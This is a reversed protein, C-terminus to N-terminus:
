AYAPPRLGLEDILADLTTNRLHALQVLAEIRRANAEEIQDTIQTLEQQETSIITEDQLKTRLENYRQWVTASIGLNVQKLLAAESMTSAPGRHSLHEQLLNAVYRDPAVGAQRAIARVEQELEPVLHLTLSM